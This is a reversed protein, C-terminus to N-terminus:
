LHIATQGDVRKASPDANKSLLLAVIPVNASTVALILLTNGEADAANLIENFKEHQNFETFFMRLIDSHSNRCAYAFPISSTEDPALVDADHEILLRATDVSGYFCAGHLPRM